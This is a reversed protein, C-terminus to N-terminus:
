DQQKENSHILALATYGKTTLPSLGRQLNKRLDDNSLLPKNNWILVARSKLLTRTAFLNLPLISTGDNKNDQRFKTTQRFTHPPSQIKSALELSSSKINCTQFIVKSRYLLSSGVFCGESNVAEEVLAILQFLFRMVHTLTEKEWHGEQNLM